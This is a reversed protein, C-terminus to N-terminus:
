RQWWPESPGDECLRIMYGLPRHRWSAHPDPCHALRHGEGSKGKPVGHFHINMCYPCLLKIQTGDETYRGVIVPDDM